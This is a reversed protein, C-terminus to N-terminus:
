VLTSEIKRNKKGRRGSESTSAGQAINSFRGGKNAGQANDLWAM